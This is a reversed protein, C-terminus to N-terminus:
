RRAELQALRATLSAIEREQAEIRREQRQMENLLMPPMEHYKV